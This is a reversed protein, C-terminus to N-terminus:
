GLKRQIIEGCKITWLLLLFWLEVALYVRIEEWKTWNKGNKELNIFRVERMGAAIATYLFILNIMSISFNIKFFQYLISLNLFMLIILLLGLRARKLTVGASYFFMINTFEM